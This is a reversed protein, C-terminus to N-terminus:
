TAAPGSATRLADLRPLLSRFELEIFLERVGDIAASDLAAYRPGAPLPVDRRLRVLRESSCIQESHARLLAELRPNALEGLGALLADADRFRSAVQQAAKPGIGKVKPINDSTDGLLAVYLPLREPSIGFRERVAAEDYRRPPKGRQGLFLVEVRETILQFMDRDGSAILVNSGRESLERALTALVDDAEFGRLSFRPMALRELLQDLREFQRVLESPAADRTGKYEPFAEHRFTPEPRDLAFACGEPREERLMKLLLASLGYIASTPEGALTNMPPLAHFARFFLSYTDILLVAV